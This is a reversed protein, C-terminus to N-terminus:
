AAKKILYDRVYDSLEAYDISTVVGWKKMRDDMKEKRREVYGPPLNKYLPRIGAQLNTHLKDVILKLSDIKEKFGKKEAIELALDALYGLENQIGHKIALESLIQPNYSESILRIPVLPIDISDTPSKLNNLIGEEVNIAKKEKHM